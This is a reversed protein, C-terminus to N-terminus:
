KSKCNLCTTLGLKSSCWANETECYAPLKKADYDDPMTVFGALNLYMTAPIEILSDVTQLIGGRRFPQVIKVKM